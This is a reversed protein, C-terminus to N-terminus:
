CGGAAAFDHRVWLAVLLWLGKREKKKPPHVIVFRSHKKIKVIARSFSSMEPLIIKYYRCYKAITHTQTQLTM